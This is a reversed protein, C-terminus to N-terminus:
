SNKCQSTDLSFFVIFLKVYKFVFRLQVQTNRLAEDKANLNRLLTSNEDELAMLQRLFFVM